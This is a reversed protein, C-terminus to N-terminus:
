QKEGSAPASLGGADHGLQSLSQYWNIGAQVDAIRAQALAQETSLVELISSLGTKYRAKIADAAQEAARLQARAADLAKRSTQVNQYAVWVQQEVSLRLTETDAQSQDVAAKAQDIAGKVSFGSFIPLDVRLGGSYSTATGRGEITTRSATGSASLSPWNNARAERVAAEAAQERAKSALLEPRADRAGQLMEQVTQPPLEPNEPPHWEALQVVSDPAYGLAVALAGEAVVRSGEAQQLTTTAAALAAQAQYVDGITAVGSKRRADAADANAQAEDRSLRSALEVGRAGIVAYYASEVTLMLDAISQTQTLRQAVTEAHARDIGGGRGGFDLLLWNFTVSPGYRTQWPVQTGEFALQKLRQASYSASITPWYGARAITEAAESQRVLAWASRTSPNNRMALDTAEVLTLPKDPLPEAAQAAACALLAIAM